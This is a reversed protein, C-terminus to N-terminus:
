RSEAIIDAVADEFARYGGKRPNFSGFDVTALHAARNPMFECLAPYERLAREAVEEPTIETPQNAKNDKYVTLTM